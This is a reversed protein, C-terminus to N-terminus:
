RIGTFLLYLLVIVAIIWLINRGDPYAFGGGFLILILIILLILLM